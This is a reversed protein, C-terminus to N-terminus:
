RLAAEFSVSKKAVSSCLHVRIPWSWVGCATEFRHEGANGTKEPLERVWKQMMEVGPHVGYISSKAAKTASRAM